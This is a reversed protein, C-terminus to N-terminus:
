LTRMWDGENDGEMRDKGSKEDLWNPMNKMNQIVISADLHLCMITSINSFNGLQKLRRFPITLNSGRIVVTEGEMVNARSPLISM